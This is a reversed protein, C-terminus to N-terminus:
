LLGEMFKVKITKKDLDVSLIFTKLFPILVDKKDAKVRLTQYSAYEEVKKVKGIYTGSDFYVDLGILDSYFYQDKKLIKEDKEVCLEKHILTEAEEISSIEEFTIHELGKNVRRSKVTLEKLEGDSLTVFLHSGKKFRFDGFSTSPYVKVEGRLGVTKIITGVTLYEM